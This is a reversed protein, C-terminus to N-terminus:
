PQIRERFYQKILTNDKLQRLANRLHSKITNVSVNLTSAAGKYSKGSFYVLELAKRGQGPLSDLAEQFVARAEEDLLFDLGQTVDEETVMQQMKRKLTSRRSLYNLCHNRISQRLYGKISSYVQFIHKEEWLKILLQQVIDEAEDPDDVYFMAVACLGAYYQDFVKRFAEEENGSLLMEIEANEKNLMGQHM